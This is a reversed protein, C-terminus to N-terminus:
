PGAPREVPGTPDPAAALLPPTEPGVRRGSGPRSSMISRSLLIVPGLGVLVIVLSATSAETLREDSALRYAQVALTDFNFPRMILTAPLEKVVDVFVILGATLLTGSLMPVHVRTLTGLFNAGLSRAAGDMSPTVKELGAEVSGLAVAMFRVLYAYTLAIISGTLLLGTSVGFTSRMVGDVANDLSALPVLVGVAIISGPVAYGMSAVRNAARALPSATLRAAYAMALALSVALVATLGALTVSNRMLTLSRAGFLDHGFALSLYLLLGAPLLFGVFVPILCALTALGARAGRLRYGPLSQYRNTTHHVRAAGRSRRELVLVTLALLLLMASLQGALARDGLSRWARDIGTTFTQVGFHAVTGFDALTEMLALAVGAAIAPRALPLSVRWFSDVPSSGLTRSVEIACASQALFASRALLYVYPYLVFSFILIAGPLSRIEPFWYDRPGLDFVERLASQVPGSHQLFDTYVYALVYAPIALPLVLAWEFVRRGPFRCMTVLWAAPVGLATVGLTTGLALLLTNAGYRALVTDALHGLNPSTAFLSAGVWLIPAAILLAPLLAPLASLPGPGRRRLGRSAASLRATAFM